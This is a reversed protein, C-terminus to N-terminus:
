TQFRDRNDDTILERAHLEQTLNSNRHSARWPTSRHLGPSAPVKGLSLSCCRHAHRWLVLAGSTEPAQYYYHHDYHHDDQDHAADDSVRHQVVFVAVAVSQELLLRDRQGSSQSSPPPVVQEHRRCGQRALEYKWPEQLRHM